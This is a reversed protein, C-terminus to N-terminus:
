FVFVLVGNTGLAVYLFELCLDKTMVRATVQDAKELEGFDCIAQIGEDPVM